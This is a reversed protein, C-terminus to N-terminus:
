INTPPGVRGWHAVDESRWFEVKIKISKWFNNEKELFNKLLYVASVRHGGDFLGNDVVQLPPMYYISQPNEKLFNAYIEVQRFVDWDRNGELFDKRIERL